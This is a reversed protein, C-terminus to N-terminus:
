CNQALIMNKKEDEVVRILEKETPITLRFESSFITQNDEPLTYRVVTENKDTSLLIGITKNENDSKVERDYYNVYMQMQGIDKHTVKGLKLDIIVFCSLIRNYFVLDPYFHESDVTLRVQNSVFTFGKGLELLFEKLHNLINKELGAEQYDTTEKIDLFELVFPDKIIDKNKSIEQGKISLKRIEEENKGSMLREYLLTTRQRQLERVSWGSNICERTYFNRKNKDKIKILEVYHSWTLQSSLTTGIPSSGKFEASLTQPIPYCTYFRRMMQLNRASFGDGFEEKLRAAVKEILYDGYKARTAGGQEEVIMRGINWYLFLMEVNVARYVRNRSQEILSRITGFLNNIDKEDTIDYNKM